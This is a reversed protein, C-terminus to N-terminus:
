YLNWNYRAGLCGLIFFVM